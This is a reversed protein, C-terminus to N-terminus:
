IGARQVIKQRRGRSPPKTKGFDRLVPAENQPNRLHHLLIVTRKSWIKVNQEQLQSTNLSRKLLVTQYEAEM